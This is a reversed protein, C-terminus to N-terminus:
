LKRYMIYANTLGYQLHNFAEPIEGIIQFGLKMGFNLQETM